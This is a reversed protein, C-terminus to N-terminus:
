EAGSSYKRAFVNYKAEAIEWDSETDIDQVEKEPLVYPITGPMILTHLRLFDETKGIKRFLVTRLRSIIAKLDQSRTREYEPYQYRIFSNKAIIFARQPPFSYPCWVEDFITNKLAAEISYAIILKGCFHRINKKSIRKSSGRATIIAACFM